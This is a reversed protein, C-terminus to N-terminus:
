LHTGSAALMQIRRLLLQNEQFRTLFPISNSADNLYTPIEPKSKWDEHASVTAVALLYLAYAQDQLECYTLVNSIISHLIKLGQKPYELQILLKAFRILGKHTLSNFKREEACNLVSFLIKMANVSSATDNADKNIWFVLLIDVWLLKAILIEMLFSSRVDDDKSLSELVKIAEIENGTKSLLLAKYTKCAILEASNSSLNQAWCDM